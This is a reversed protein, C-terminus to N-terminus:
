GCSSHSPARSSFSGCCCTSSCRKWGQEGESSRSSWGLRSAARARGSTPVRCDGSEPSDASAALNQAAEVAEADPVAVTPAATMVPPAVPKAQRPTQAAPAADEVRPRVPAAREAAQAAMEAFRDVPEDESLWAVGAEAYFHMLAALEDPLLDHAPPTTM